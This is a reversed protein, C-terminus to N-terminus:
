LYELHVRGQRAVVAEFLDGRAAVRDPVNGIHFDEIAIGAEVEEWTVPM